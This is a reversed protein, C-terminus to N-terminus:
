CNGGKRAGFAAFCSNKHLIDVDTFIRAWPVLSQNDRPPQRVVVYITTNTMGAFAPIWYKLCSPIGRSEPDLGSHRNDSLRRYPIQM